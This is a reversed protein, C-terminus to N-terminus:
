RGQISVVVIVVVGLILEEIKTHLIVVTEFRVVVVVVVVLLTREEVATIVRRLQGDLKINVPTFTSCEVLQQRQPDRRLGSGCRQWLADTRLSTSQATLNKGASQCRQFSAAVLVVGGHLQHFLIVVPVARDNSSLSYFSVISSFVPTLNPM